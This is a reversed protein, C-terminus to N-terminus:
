VFFKWTWKIRPDNKIWKRSVIKWATFLLPAYRYKSHFHVVRPVCTSWFSIEEGRSFYKREWNKIWKSIVWRSQPLRVHTFDTWFNWGAHNLWWTSCKWHSNACHLVIKRWLWWWYRYQGKNNQYTWQVCWIVFKIKGLICLKKMMIEGRVSDQGQDKHYQRTSM